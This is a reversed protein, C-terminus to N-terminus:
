IYSLFSRINMCIQSETVGAKVLMSIMELNEKLTGEQNWKMYLDDRKTESM